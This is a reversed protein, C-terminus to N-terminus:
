RGAEDLMRSAELLLETMSIELKREPLLANADFRFRGRSAGVLVLAAGLGDAKETAAHV